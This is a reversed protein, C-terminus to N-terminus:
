SNKIELDRLVNKEVKIMTYFYPLVEYIVELLLIKFSCFLTHQSSINWLLWLTSESTNKTTLLFHDWDLSAYYVHCLISNKSFLEMNSLLINLHMLYFLFYINDDYVWPHRIYVLEHSLFQTSMFKLIKLM